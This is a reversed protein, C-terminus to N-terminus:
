EDCDEDDCDEDDWDEDDEGKARNKALVADGKAMGLGWVFEEECVGFGGKESLSNFEEGSENYDGRLNNLLKEQVLGLELKDIDEDSLEKRVAKEILSLPLTFNSSEPGTRDFFISSVYVKKEKAM